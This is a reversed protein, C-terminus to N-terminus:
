KAETIEAIDKKYIIENKRIVIDNVLLEQKFKAEFNPLLPATQIVYRRDIFKGEYDTVFNNLDFKFNEPPIKLPNEVLKLKERISIGEVTMPEDFQNILQYTTLTTYGYLDPGEEIKNSTSVVKLSTPCQVTIKKIIEYTKKESGLELTYTIKIETDDKKSSKKKGKIRVESKYIDEPSIAINENGKIIEWKYKAGKIQNPALKFNRASALGNSYVYVLPSIIDGVLIIISKSGSSVLSGDTEAKATIIIPNKKIDNPATWKIKSFDDLIQFNGGCSGDDWSFKTKEQPSEIRLEVTEGVNVINPSIINLDKSSVDTLFIKLFILVVILIRM